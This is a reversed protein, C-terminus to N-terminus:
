FSIFLLFVPLLFSFIKVVTIDNAGSWLGIEAASWGSVEGGGPVYNGEDQKPDYYSFGECVHSDTICKGPYSRKHNPDLFVYCNPDGVCQKACVYRGLYNVCTPTEEPCSPSPQRNDCLLFYQGNIDISSSDFINGDNISKRFESIRRRDNSTLQLFAAIKIETKHSLKSWVNMEMDYIQERESRETRFVEMFQESAPSIEKTPYNLKMLEEKSTLRPPPYGNFLARILSLRTSPGANNWFHILVETAQQEKMNRIM